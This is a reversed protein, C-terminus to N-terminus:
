TPLAAQCCLLVCEQAPCGSCPDSTVQLGGAVNNMELTPKSRGGCLVACRRNEFVNNEIFEGTALEVIVMGFGMNQRVVNRLFNAHSAGAFHAAAQACKTFTCTRITPSAAGNVVLGYGQV